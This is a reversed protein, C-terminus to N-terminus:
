GHFRSSPEYAISAPDIQDILRECEQQRRLLMASLEATAANWARREWEIHPCNEACAECCAAETRHYEEFTM